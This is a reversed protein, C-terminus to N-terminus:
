KLNLVGAGAAARVPFLQPEIGSTLEYEEAVYEMFPEVRGSDVFAVMCGGFGAGTQRAGIVGPGGLMAKMMQEMERCSIEYLDRAGAYSREALSRIGSRDGAGLTVAIVLVRRNEEIIFRCRRAVVAPLESEYREFQELTVDRLSRVEPYFEALDAL